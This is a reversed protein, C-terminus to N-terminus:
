MATSQMQAPSVERLCASCSMNEPQRTRRLFSPMSYRLYNAALLEGVPLADYASLSRSIAAGVACHYSPVEHARRWGLFNAYADGIASSFFFKALFPVSVVLVDCGDLRLAGFGDFDRKAERACFQLVQRLGQVRDDKRAAGRIDLRRKKVGRTLEFGSFGVGIALAGIERQEAVGDCFLLGDEGDAVPHLTQVNEQAARQHLVNGACDVSFDLVCPRAVFTRLRMVLDSKFCARAQRLQGARRFCAHVARMMLGHKLRSFIKADHRVRRIAHDFCDFPGAVGVPDDAHLPM